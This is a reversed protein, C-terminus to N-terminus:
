AAAKSSEMPRQQLTLPFHIEKFLKGEKISAYVMVFLVQNISDYSEVKVRINILRPEALQIATEILLATRPWEQPNTADFYSFDALGFFDPFGFLPITEIHDQYIVKRVTCRTNLVLTLEQIISDRVEEANLLSPPVWGSRDDVIRDFLPPLTGKNIKLQQM